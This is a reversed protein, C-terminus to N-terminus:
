IVIRGAAGGISCAMGLVLVEDLIEIGPDTIAIQGLGILLLAAVVLSVGYALATETLPHQFLGPNTQDRHAPDFGSAFVIVYSALLSFAIIAVASLPTVSAALMPIEETPAIAFGLFVAGAATAGVDNRLEQLWTASSQSGVREADPDFVAGAVSAGISLPILQIVIIGLASSAAGNTTDGFDFRNMVALVVVSAVLGVLMAEIADGTAGILSHQDRRFSDLYALCVNALL